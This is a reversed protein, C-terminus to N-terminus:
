RVVIVVDAKKALEKKVEEERDAVAVIYGKKLLRESLKKARKEDKVKLVRM